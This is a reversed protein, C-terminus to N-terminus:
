KIRSYADHSHRFFREIANGGLEKYKKSLIFHFNMCATPGMFLLMEMAVNVFKKKWATDECYENLKGTSVIVDPDM